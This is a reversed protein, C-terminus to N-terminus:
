LIYFTLLLYFFHFFPYNCCNFKKFQNKNNFYFYNILGMNITLMNTRTINSVIHRYSVFVIRIYIQYSVFFYNFYPLFCSVSLFIFVVRLCSYRLIIHIVSFIHWNKYFVLIRISIIFFIHCSISFICVHYSYM